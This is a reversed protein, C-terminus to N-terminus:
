MVVVPRIYKLYANSAWRGVQRIYADSAGTLALDTTRGIRFSHTNINLHGFSSRQVITELWKTVMLRTLPQGNKQCLLYPSTPKLQQFELLSNVPCTTKDTTALIKIKAASKSHKFSKLNITLDMPKGTPFSYSIKAHRSRLAHDAKGSKALESIRLCGHYLLTFVAKLLKKTFLSTGLSPLIGVIERLMNKTVPQMQKGSRSTRKLGIMFKSLLFADSPDHLGRVKHAFSIASLYGQITSALYGKLALSTLFSIITYIDHPYSLSRGQEELFRHFERLHQNYSRRTSVAM